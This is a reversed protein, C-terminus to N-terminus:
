YQISTQLLLAIIEEKFTKVKPSAPEVDVGMNIMDENDNIDDDESGEGQEEDVIKFQQFFNEEWDDTTEFCVHLESDGELKEKLTCREEFPLTKQILNEIKEQHDCESFPDTDEDLRTAVVDMSSTLIGAKRFYKQITKETALGWAKAVWRIAMFVNVSKVVDTARDCEDIKSLVHKLLFHRYHVKFNKIIGLDLPQLM